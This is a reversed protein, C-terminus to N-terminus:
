RDIDDHIVIPAYKYKATKDKTNIELELKRESRKEAPTEGLLDFLLKRDSAGGSVADQVIAVCLADDYTGDIIGHEQLRDGADGRAQMDLVELLRTRLEKRRRKSKAAAKGGKSRIEQQEQEPRSTIDVLNDERNM